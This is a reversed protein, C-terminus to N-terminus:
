KSTDLVEKCSALVKSAIPVCVSRGYGGDEVCVVFALPYEEDAAFGALMANPKKDGGVEGTGTKACVTLGPFNDDGYKNEVNNRLFEQLTEATSASMIRKGTQKQASYTTSNGVTIEEVLYPLTGKGGGAIAGMFTMFACPNIQDNYQGIGSWGVDVSSAGVAEYNGEATTIGDFRISKTVGFAEVYREMTEPGIQLTIQAFACNCSNRFASRVNQEGHAGECTIEDGGITYSGNCTFTQQLIDPITELAAAMTVIKFISGPIYGSQIFRNVYVGEYMGTTDGQIDPVNDPDFTPTTVACLLQGTKYNYVSVTGKYGGLAELAATQVKASLTLEAVGSNNGYNYVGSLLDYGAIQASYNSLAPAYISGGRDGLWHVTAKRIDSVSAYKRGENMDLLLINDRDVAVGCGINGAHYVHPSGPFIVWQDAQTVFEAVFFGVGALLLLVILLTIGARGAIRNM